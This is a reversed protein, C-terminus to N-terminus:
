WRRKWEDSWQDLPMPMLLVGTPDSERRRAEERHMGLSLYILAARCLQLVKLAKRELDASSIVHALTDGSAGAPLEGPTAPALAALTVPHTAMM